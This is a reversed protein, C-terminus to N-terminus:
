GDEPRWFGTVGNTVSDADLQAGSECSVDGFNFATFPTGSPIGNTFDEQPFGTVKVGYLQGNNLGAAEIPNSSSTKTGVYIYVQGRPSTDDLGAVVTKDGALGRSTTVTAM